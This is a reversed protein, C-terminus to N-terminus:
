HEARFVLKGNYIEGTFTVWDAPFWEKTASFFGEYLVKNNKKTQKNKQDILTRYSEKLIGSVTLIFFFM